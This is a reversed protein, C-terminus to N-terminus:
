LSSKNFFLTLIFLSMAVPMNIGLYIGIPKQVVRPTTKCLSILRWEKEYEWDMSKYLLVKHM